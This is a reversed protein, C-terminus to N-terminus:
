ISGFGTSLYKQITTGFSMLRIYGCVAIRKASRRLV